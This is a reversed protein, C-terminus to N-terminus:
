IDHIRKFWTTSHCQYHVVVHLGLKTSPLNHTKHLPLLCNYVIPKIYINQVGCGSPYKYKNIDHIIEAYNSVNNVYILRM